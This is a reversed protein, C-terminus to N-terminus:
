EIQLACYLAGQNADFKLLLLTQRGNHTLIRNIEPAVAGSGAGCRLLVAYGKRKILDSSFFM